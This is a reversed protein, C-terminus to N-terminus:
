RPALTVMGCLSLEMFNTSSSSGNASFIPDRFVITLLFPFSNPYLVSASANRLANFNISDKSGVPAFTNIIPAPPAALAATHESKSSSIERNTIALLVTSLAMERPLYKEELMSTKAMPIFSERSVSYALFDLRIMLQEAMPIFFPEASCNDGRPDVAM